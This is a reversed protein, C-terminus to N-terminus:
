RPSSQSPPALVYRELIMKLEKRMLEPAGDLDTDRLSRQEIERLPKLELVKSPGRDLRKTKLGNQM